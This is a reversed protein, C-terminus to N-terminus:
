LEVVTDSIAIVTGDTDTYVEESINGNDLVYAYFKWEVSSYKNMYFKGSVTNSGTLALDNYRGTYNPQQLLNFLQNANSIVTDSTSIVDM